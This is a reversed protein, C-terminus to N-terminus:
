LCSVPCHARQRPHSASGPIDQWQPEGIGDIQTVTDHDFINYTWGRPDLLPSLLVISRWVLRMLNCVPRLQVNISFFWQTKIILVISVEPLLQYASAGHLETCGKPVRLGRGTLTEAMWGKRLSFGPSCDPTHFSLMHLHSDEDVKIEWKYELLKIIQSDPSQKREFEPTPVTEQSKWITCSACAPSPSTLM